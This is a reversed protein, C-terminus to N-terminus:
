GSLYKCNLIKFIIGIDSPMGTMKSSSDANKAHIQNMVTHLCTCRCHLSLTLIYVFLCLM